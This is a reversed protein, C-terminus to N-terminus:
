SFRVPSFISALTVAQRVRTISCIWTRVSFMAPSTFSSDIELSQVLVIGCRKLPFLRPYLIVQSIISLLAALGANLAQELTGLHLIPWLCVLAGVFAVQSLRASLSSGAFTLQPM